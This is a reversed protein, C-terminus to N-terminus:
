RSTRQLANNHSEAILTFYLNHPGMHIVDGNHLKERNGSGVPEEADNVFTGNTGIDILYVGDDSSEIIAHTRSLFKEVDPLTVDNEGGRGVTVRCGKPVFHKLRDEKEAIEITLVAVAHQTALSAAIDPNNIKAIAYEEKLRAKRERDEKKREYHAKVVSSLYVTIASTIVGIIAGILFKSDM